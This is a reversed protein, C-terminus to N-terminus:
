QSVEVGNADRPIRNKAAQQQDATLAQEYVDLLANAQEVNRSISSDDSHLVDAVIRADCYHMAAAGILAAAIATIAVKM